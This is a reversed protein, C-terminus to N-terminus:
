CEEKGMCDQVRIVGVKKEPSKLMSIRPENIDFHSKMIDYAAM